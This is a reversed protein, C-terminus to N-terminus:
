RYDDELAEDILLMIGLWELYDSDHARHNHHRHHRHKIGHRNHLKYHNLHHRHYGHYQHNYAYHRGAKWKNYNHGNFHRYKEIRHQKRHIRKKHQRRESRSDHIARDHKQYQQDSFKKHKHSSDSDALATTPFALLGLSLTLATLAQKM